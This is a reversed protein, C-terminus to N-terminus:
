PRSKSLTPPTPSWPSRPTAGKLFLCRTRPVLRQPYTPTSCFSGNGRRGRVLLLGCGPAQPTRPMGAARFRRGGARALRGERPSPRLGCGIIQNSQGGAQGRQDPPHPSRAGQGAWDPTLPSTVREPLTMQPGALSPVCPLQTIQFNSREKEVFSPLISGPTSPPQAFQACKELARGGELSNRITGPSATTQPNPFSPKPGEFGAEWNGVHGQCM